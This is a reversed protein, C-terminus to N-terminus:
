AGRYILLGLGLAILAAVGILWWISTGAGSEPALTGAVVPMSETIARAPDMSDHGRAPLGPAEVIFLSGGFALQDGPHLVADRVSVGNVQSGDRSEIDRLWIADGAHEIMAHRTAVRADDLVLDCAADRGLVLLPNVAITKGFHNGSVGRLAVRPPVAASAQPEAQAPVDRLIQEDRDAKVAIVARGLCVTDGFRLLARERVPRANVHTRATSDLVELVIGRPDVTFRAHWPAVERDRLVLTNGEANGLSISGGDVVFDAHEGNAFSLRM